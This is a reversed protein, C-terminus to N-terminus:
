KKMKRIGDLSLTCETQVAFKMQLPSYEFVRMFAKVPFMERDSGDIM